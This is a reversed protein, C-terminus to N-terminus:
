REDFEKTMSFEHLFISENYKMCEYGYPYSKDDTRVNMSKCKNCDENCTIM